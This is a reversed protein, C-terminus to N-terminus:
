IRQAAPPAARELWVDRWYIHIARPCFLRMKTLEGCCFVDELIVPPTKFDIMTGHKEHIIRNVKAQVRYVNGCYKVMEPDFWLGRNKNNKDITNLIEDYPKVRVWDGVELGLDTTPTKEARGPHWPYPIGHWLSQLANFLVVKARHGRGFNMFHRYASFWFSRVMRAVNTNGTRLDRVYQSMDSWKLPETAAKLRTAQCRYVIPTQGPETETTARTLVAETAVPTNPAGAYSSPESGSAKEDARLWEEKFFLLCGADCGGHASGDCRLGVLHVTDHMRRGGLNDITDCTKDARKYVIAKQGCLDLMEPMFPLSELEGNADLTALIEAKTRITVLDGPRLDLPPRHPM